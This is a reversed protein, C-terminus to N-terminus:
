LRFEPLFRNPATATQVESMRCRVNRQALASIVSVDGTM